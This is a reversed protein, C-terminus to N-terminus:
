AARRSENEHRPLKVYVTERPAGQKTCEEDVLDEVADGYHERLFELITPRSVTRSGESRGFYVRGEGITVSGMTKLLPMIATKYEAQKEMLRQIDRKISLLEKALLEATPSTDEM